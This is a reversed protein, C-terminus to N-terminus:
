KFIGILLFSIKRQFRHLFYERHHFLLNAQLFRVDCVPKNLADHKQIICDLSAPTHISYTTIYTPSTFLVTSKKVTEKLTLNTTILHSLPEHYKRSVMTRERWHRELMQQCLFNSPKTSRSPHVFGVIIANTALCFCIKHHFRCVHHLYSIHSCLKSYLTLYNNM